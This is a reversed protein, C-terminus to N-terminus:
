AEGLGRRAEERLLENSKSSRAIETLRARLEATGVAAASRIALGTVSPESDELLATLVREADLPDLRQAGHAVAARVSLQPHESAAVLVETAQSGGVFAALSAAKSALMEDDDRVLLALHPLSEIGLTRAAERYDPEEAGLAVLVDEATVAM